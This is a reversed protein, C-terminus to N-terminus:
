DKAMDSGLHQTNLANFFTHRFADQKGGDAGTPFKEAAIHLAAYANILYFYQDQINLQDFIALDEAKMNNRYDIEFAAFVDGPIYMGNENLPYTPNPIIPDPDDEVPFDDCIGSYFNMIDACPNIDVSRCETKCITDEYIWGCYESEPGDPGEPFYMVCGQVYWDNCTEFCEVVSTRM